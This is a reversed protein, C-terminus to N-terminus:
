VIKIEEFVHWVLSNGNTKYTGIYKDVSGPMTLMPHGTGYHKIRREEFLNSHEDVIAYLFAKGDVCDLNIIKADVPMSIKQQGLLEIKYKFIKM